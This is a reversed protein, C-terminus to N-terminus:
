VIVECDEAVTSTRGDMVISNKHHRKGM